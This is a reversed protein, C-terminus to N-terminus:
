AEAVSDVHGPIDLLIVVARELSLVAQKAFITIGQCCEMEDTDLFADGHDVRGPKKLRGDRYFLAERLTAKSADVHTLIGGAIRRM